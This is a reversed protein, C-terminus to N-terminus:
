FGGQLANILMAALQQGIFIDVIAGITIFPIFPLQANKNKLMGKAIIFVMASISTILLIFIINIGNYALALFSFLIIDAIGIVERKLVVAYFVYILVFIVVVAGFGILNVLLLSSCAQAWIFRLCMLGSVIILVPFPIEYMKYDVIAGMVLFYIIFVDVIEIYAFHTMGSWSNIDVVYRLLFYMLPLSLGSILEFLLTSLPIKAGCYRCKGKLFLYSFVPILDKWVLTHKCSDCYSRPYEKYSINEKYRSIYSLFFSGLCLGILLLVIPIFVFDIFTM